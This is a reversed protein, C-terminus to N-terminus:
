VELTQVRKRERIKEVAGRLNERLVRGDRVARIVLLPHSGDTSRVLVNGLGVLRLLFPQEFTTDKVRYLELEDVRKSLVGQEFQIRESTIEYRTCRTVLVRWAAWLLPFVLFAFCSALLFAGANEWQSPSGNWIRSEDPM